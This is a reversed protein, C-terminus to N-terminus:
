NPSLRVAEAGERVTSSVHWGSRQLALRALLLPWTSQTATPAPRPPYRLEIGDNRLEIRVVPADCRRRLHARLFTGLLSILAIPGPHHSTDADRTCEYLLTRENPVADPRQLEHCLADAFDPELPADVQRACFRQLHDIAEGLIRSQQRMMLAMVHADAASGAARPATCTRLAGLAYAIEERLAEVIPELRARLAAHTSASLKHFVAARIAHPELPVSAIHRYSLPLRPAAEAMQVAVIPLTPWRRTLQHLLGAAHRTAVLALDALMSDAPPVRDIGLFRLHCDHELLVSLTERLAQSDSFAVVVPAINM